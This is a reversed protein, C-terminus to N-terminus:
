NGTVAIVNPEVEIADGYTPPKTKPEIADGYTHPYDQNHNKQKLNFEELGTEPNITPGKYATSPRYVTQEVDYRPPSSLSRNSSRGAGLPIGFEFNFSNNIMQSDIYGNPTLVPTDFKFEQQNPNNPNYSAKFWAGTRPSEYRYGLAINTQLLDNISAEIGFKGKNGFDFGKSYKFEGRTDGKPRRSLSFDIPGKNYTYTSTRDSSLDVDGWKGDKNTYRYNVAQSYDGDFPKGGSYNITLNDGSYIDKDFLVGRATRTLNIPLDLSDIVFDIAKNKAGTELEGVKTTVKDKLYAEPDEQKLATEIDEIYPINEFQESLNDELADRFTELEEQPADILKYEIAEFFAKPDLGGIQTKAISDIWGVDTLADYINVGFNHKLEDLFNESDGKLDSLKDEGVRTIIDDSVEPKNATDKKAM